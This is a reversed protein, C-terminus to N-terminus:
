PVARTFPVVTGRQEGQGLVWARLTPMHFRLRGLVRIHPVENAAVRAYLWSTSVRMWVAVEEVTALEVDPDPAAALDEATPPRGNHQTM